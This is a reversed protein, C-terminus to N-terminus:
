PGDESVEGPYPGIVDEHALADFVIEGPNVGDQAMEMSTSLRGPESLDYALRAHMGPGGHSLRLVEGEFGGKFM